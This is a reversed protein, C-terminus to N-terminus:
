DKHLKNNAKAIMQIFYKDHICWLIQFRQYTASCALKRTTVDYKEQKFIKMDFLAIFSETFFLDLFKKRLATFFKVLEFRKHHM